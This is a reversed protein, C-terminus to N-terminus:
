KDYDIDVVSGTEASLQIDDILKQIYFGRDFDSTILTSDNKEIAEVFDRVELFYHIERTNKLALADAYIEEPVEVVKREEGIKQMTIAFQNNGNYGLYGKSGYVEFLHDCGIRSSTFSVLAGSEMKANFVSVDDNDVDKIKDTFVDKRQEIFLGQMCQVSRIPGCSDRLIWDTMDLMHSGFDAVSGPGSLESQMRWECKVDPNGIRNGGQSERVFYIKGLFGDDILKKIYRFAPIGRYCLGIMCVKGTLRQYRIAEMCDESNRAFPKECLVHKGRKLAEVTLDVHTANPTCISVADCEDLLEEYTKAIKAKGLDFKKKYEEARGPLIDYLATITVNDLKLYGNIHAKAIGITNGCGVIGVRVM